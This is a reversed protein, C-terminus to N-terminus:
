KLKLRENLQDATLYPSHYHKEKVYSVKPVRPRASIAVQAAYLLRTSEQETFVGLMVGRAVCDIFFCINDSGILGPMEMRFAEAGLKRAQEETSGERIAAKYAEDWVQKCVVDPPFLANIAQPVRFNDDMPM